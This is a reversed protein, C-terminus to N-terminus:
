MRAGHLRRLELRAVGEAVLAVAAVVGACSALLLPWDLDLVLPPDPSSDGLAIRVTEVVLLSLVIGAALAVCAGVASVLLIRLRVFAALARPEMGQAELDLLEGRRRRLETTAALAVGLLTLALGALAGAALLLRAARAVTSSRSTAALTERSTVDLVRFRPRELETGVRGPAPDEIWVENYFPPGPSAANIATAVTGRDALVVDGHTTPFHRVVAAVRAVVRAGVVDLPLLGHAGAGAAVDPSVAVPVPRGATPQRVAFRAAESTGVAFRLRATRRTARATVGGSGVFRRFDLGRVPGLEVKGVAVIDRLEGAQPNGRLRFGGPEFGLGVLRAAPMGAPRRLRLVRDATTAVQVAKFTGTASVFTASIDIPDGSAAMPVTLEGSPPLPIAQFSTDGRAALKAALARPSLSSFDDRWGELVPLSGAPLGLMTFGVNGSPRPADGSLRLVPLKTTGPIEGLPVSTV